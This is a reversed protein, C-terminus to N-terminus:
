RMCSRGVNPSGNRGFPEEGFRRRGRRLGGPPSGAGTLGLGFGVGSTSPASAGISYPRDRLEARDAAGPRTM